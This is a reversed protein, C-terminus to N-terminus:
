NRSGTIRDMIIATAVWANLSEAKGFRPITIKNTICDEVAKSIGHAENGIVIHMGHKSFSTTHINEGDLYAWYVNENFKSLYQVINTYIIPVRSFSGMTAMVVKSNYCDVTDTSAIIRTVGYWDAIRIITGLNGPDNISDLVLVLDGDKIDIPLSNKRMKVLLLGSDNSTLSSIRSLENDTVVSVPFEFKKGTLFKETFYGEIIECNSSVFEM